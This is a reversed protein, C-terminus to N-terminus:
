QYGHKEIHPGWRSTIEGRLEPTLEYRNTQYRKSRGAYRRIAPEVADFERWQFYEYMARVEGVPDRVLDEYRLQYFQAPDILARTEELKRHMAVFTDFVYDNLADLKPRQLGQTAYMVTWFHVTSPFVVYPDRVIHIFQAKPFMRSLVKLRSTHRPSKLVLRGPRKFLIRQLFRRLSREWRQLEAPALDELDVYRPYQLPRNPFAVTLFPSPVGLNCLAAEDEQPRDFSMRMNDMPRRSPLMFWLWRRVFRESILFHNPVLCEYTTPCRHRPDLALLEQVMTTGTRWHGIIFIPDATIEVRAVQRGLRLNQVARLTTNAVACLTIALATPLRSPSVAFRNRALLRLWAFFDMGSWLRGQYWSDRKM